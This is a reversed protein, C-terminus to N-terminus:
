LTRGHGDHHSASLCSGPATASLKVEQDMPLLHCAPHDPGPMPKQCRLAWLSVDGGVLGGRRIKGFLEMLQPGLILVYSGIPAMRSSVM